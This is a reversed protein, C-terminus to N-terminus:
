RLSHDYHYPQDNKETLCAECCMERWVKLRCSNQPWNLYWGSVFCQLTGAKVVEPQVKGWREIVNLDRPGLQQGSVFMCGVHDYVSLLIWVTGSSWGPVSCFLLAPQTCKTLGKNDDDMNRHALWEGVCLSINRCSLHIHAIAKCRLVASSKM